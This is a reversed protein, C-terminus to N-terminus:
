THEFRVDMDVREVARETIFEVLIHTIKTAM